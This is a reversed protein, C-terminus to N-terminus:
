CIMTQSNGVARCKEIVNKVQWPSMFQPKKINIVKGSEAMKVILDTQRALFAPVQLVDVVDSVPEVQCVEHIDTTIPVGFESKVRALIELGVKLGVGRFSSISSRNAKDFSAKFILPIGLGEAANCLADAAFLTSDLDEIVNIGGFLVLREDNSVSIGAINM